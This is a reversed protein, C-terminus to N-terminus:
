AWSPEKNDLGLISALSSQQGSSCGCQCTCDNCEMCYEHEADDDCICEDPEYGCSQCEQKPEEAHSCDDEHCNEGGCENCNVWDVYLEVVDSDDVDLDSLYYDGNEVISQAEEFSDAFLRIKASGIRVRANVEVEFEPM